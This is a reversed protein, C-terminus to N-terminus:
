SPRATVQEDSPVSSVSDNGMSRVISPLGADVAQNAVTAHAGDVLGSVQPQRAADRDLDDPATRETIAPCQSAEFALCLRTRPQCM